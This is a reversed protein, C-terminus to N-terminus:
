FGTPPPTQIPPATTPVPPEIPYSTPPTIQPPNKKRLANITIIIVIIAILGLGAWVALSTFDRVPKTQIDPAPTASDSAQPSPYPTTKALIVVEPSSKASSKPTSGPKKTSVPTATPCACNSSNVCDPNKCYGQYCYLGSNCNYNSGCTGGCANTPGNTSNNNDNNDDPPATPNPYVLTLQNLSSCALINQGVGNLIETEVGGSSCSFSVISTGLTKNSTLTLRAFTGSGTKTAFAASLYGHMELQGNTVPANSFTDFFGGNSVSKVTIESPINLTADAGFSATSEVDIMVDVQIDSGATPSAAAPSLYLRPAASVASAFFVAVFFLCTALLSAALTKIRMM